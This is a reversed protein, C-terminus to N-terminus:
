GALAQRQYHLTTRLAEARARQAGGEAAPCGALFGQARYLLTEALALDGRECAVDGHVLAAQAQLTLPLRLAAIRAFMSDCRSHDHNGEAEMAATIYHPYASEPADGNEFQWAILGSLHLPARNELWGAVRLHLAPREAHATMAMVTRQLLSSRFRLERDGPILSRENVVLLDHGVLTDLDGRVDGFATQLMGEWCRDGCAAALPLL